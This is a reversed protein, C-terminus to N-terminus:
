RKGRSLGHLMRSLARMPATLRWSTSNLLAKNRHRAEALAQELQAASAILAANQQKQEALAEELRTVEALLAKQRERLREMEAANARPQAHADSSQGGGKDLNRTRRPWVHYESKYNDMAVADPVLGALRFAQNLSLQDRRSYRLVHAFWIELM